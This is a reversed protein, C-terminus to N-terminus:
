APPAEDRPGVWFHPNWAIEWVHGDPDAFYAAYGGWSTDHAPRLAKAGAALAQQMLVDVEERSTVNHAITVGSFGSGASPVLADRALAERSYLALWAGALPFFAVEKEVNPMRPLGLGEEYFRIAQEVDGVGLTIMSIRPKM